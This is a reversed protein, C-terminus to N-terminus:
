YFAHMWAPRSLCSQVNRTSHTFSCMKTESFTIPVTAIGTEEELTTIMDVTMLMSLKEFWWHFPFSNQDM